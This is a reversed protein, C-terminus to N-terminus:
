DVLEPVHFASIAVCIATRGIVLGRSEAGRTFARELGWTYRKTRSSSGLGHTTPNWWRSGWDLYQSRLCAEAPHLSRRLPHYELGRPLLGYPQRWLVLSSHRCSRSTNCIISSRKHINVRTSFTPEKDEVDHRGM